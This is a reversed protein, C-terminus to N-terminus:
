EDTPELDLIHLLHTSLPSPDLAIGSEKSLKRAYIVVEKEDSFEKLSALAWDDKQYDIVQAVSILNRNGQPYIVMWHTM